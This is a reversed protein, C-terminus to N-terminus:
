VKMKTKQSLTERYLGPHVPVKKTSWAPSSRLSGGAEVERTSPDFSHAVVAQCSSFKQGKKKITTSGCPDDRIGYSETGKFIERYFIFHLSFLWPILPSLRLFM